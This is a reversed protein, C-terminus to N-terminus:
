TLATFHAAAPKSPATVSPLTALRASTTAATSTSCIQLSSYRILVFPPLLPLDCADSSFVSKFSLPAFIWGFLCLLLCGFSVRMGYNISTLFGSQASGAVLGYRRPCAYKVLPRKVLTCNENFWGDSSAASNRAALCTNSSPAPQNVGWYQSLITSGKLSGTVWRFSSTSSQNAGLWYDSVM